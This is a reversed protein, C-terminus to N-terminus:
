HLLFMLDRGVKVRVAIVLGVLFGCEMARVFEDRRLYYQITYITLFLYIAGSLGGSASYWNVRMDSLVHIGIFDCMKRGTNYITDWKEAPSKAQWWERICRIKSRLTLFLKFM